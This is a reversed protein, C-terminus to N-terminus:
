LVVSEGLSTKRLSYQSCYIHLHAERDIVASTHVAEKYERGMGKEIRPPTTSAQGGESLMVLRVTSMSISGLPSIDITDHPSWIWAPVGNSHQPVDTGWDETSGSM